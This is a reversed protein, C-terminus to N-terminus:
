RHEQLITITGNETRIDVYVAERIINLVGEINEYRPVNATIRTQAAPAYAFEVEMDYWRAIDNFVDELSTSRYVFRKDRWATYQSTDVARSRIGDGSEYVQSGPEIELSEDGKVVRLRGSLLTATSSEGEYSRFDFETGLVELSVDGSKVTFPRLSDHAVDFWGEGSLEVTRSDAAFYEPYRLESDANLHVTTGDSLVVKYEAGRPVILTHMRPQEVSVDQQQQQQSNYELVAGNSKITGDNLAIEEGLDVEDGDPLILLAKYNEKIVLNEAAEEAMQDASSHERNSFPNFVAALVVCVGAVAAAYPILARVFVKRRRQMAKQRVIIWDRVSDYVTIESLMKGSAFSRQLSEYFDKNLDSEALWENLYREGKDDLENLLSAVIVESLSDRNEAHLKEM